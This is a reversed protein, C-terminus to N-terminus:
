MKTLAFYLTIEAFIIAATLIGTKILDERLHTLTSLSATQITPASTSIQSSSFAYSARDSASAEQTPMLASPTTRHRKAALIKQKRTKRNKAM